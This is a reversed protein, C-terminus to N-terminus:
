IFNIDEKKISFILDKREILLMYDISDIKFNEFNDVVKKEPNVFYFKNGNDLAYSIGFDSSTDGMGGITQNIIKKERLINIFTKKHDRGWLPTYDNCDMFVNSGFGFVNNAYSDGINKSVYEKLLDLYIDFIFNPAGSVFLFNGGSLLVEKMKSFSFRFPNIKEKVKFSYRMFNLYGNWDVLNKHKLLLYIGANLYEFFEIEKNYAKKELKNFFELDKLFSYYDDINLDLYNHKKVFKVFVTFAEKQLVGRFFTGDLDSIFYNGIHMSHMKNKYYDQNDYDTRFKIGLHELIDKKNDKQKLLDLVKELRM